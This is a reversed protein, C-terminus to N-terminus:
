RGTRRRLLGLPLLLPLLLVGLFGGVRGPRIGQKIQGIRQAIYPDRASRSWQELLIILVLAALLGGIAPLGLTLKKSPGAPRMPATAPKLVAVSGAPQQARIEFVARQTSITALLDRKYRVQERLSDFEIRVQGYDEQSVVDLYGDSLERIRQQHRRIRQRMMAVTADDETFNTLRAMMEQELKYMEQRQERKMRLIDNAQTAMDIVGHKRYFATLREEDETLEALVQKEAHGLFGSQQLILQREIAKSAREVEVLFENAMAAALQRDNATVEITIMGEETGSIKLMRRIRDAVDDSGDGEPVHRDQKLQKGFRDAIALLVPRSMLITTYLETNPPLMLPGSAERKASDMATELSSTNVAVDLTPKERPLLLAVCSARYYTPTNQLLYLGSAIGLGVFLILLWLRRAVAALLDILPAQWGVPAIDAAAVGPAITEQAITSAFSQPEATALAEFADHETQTAHPQAQGTQPTPGFQMAAELSATPGHTTQSTDQSPEESM